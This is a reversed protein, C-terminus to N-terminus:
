MPHHQLPYGRQKYFLYRERGKRQVDPQRNVIELTREFRSFFTPVSNDLNILLTRDFGPEGSSLLIPDNESNDLESAGSKDSIMRHGLFSLARFDWLRNDMLELEQSDRGFIFVKQGQGTAKEALKCILDLRNLPDTDALVYFDIRTM